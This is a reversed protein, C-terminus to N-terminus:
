EAGPHTDYVVTGNVARVSRHYSIDDTESDFMESTDGFSVSNKGDNAKYHADGWQKTHLSSPGAHFTYTSVGDSGSSTISLGREMQADTEGAPRDITHFYIPYEFCVGEAVIHEDKQSVSNTGTTTQNNTQVLGKQGILAHNSFSLSQTWSYDSDPSTVMLEREVQIFYSLTENAGNSDTELDRSVSINPIPAAIQPGKHAVSSRTSSSATDNLYVFISGSVVWNSGVSSSPVATHNKLLDLGTVKLEFSHDQQDTLLPLFPSIDIEPQRLDFADIGVIPRWFGLSVGGTFVVPFPWIIGALFGDIYLQVERFPSYGDLQVNSDNFTLADSSFANSWWFEEAAQGCASVAMVARVASSPLRHYM